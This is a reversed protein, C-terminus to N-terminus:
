LLADDDGSGGLRQLILDCLIKGVDHVNETLASVIDGPGNDFSSGGIQAGGLDGLPLRLKKVVGAVGVIEARDDVPPPVAPVAFPDRM